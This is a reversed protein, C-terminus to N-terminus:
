VKKLYKVLDIINLIIHRCQKLLKFNIEDMQKYGIKDKLIKDDDSKFDVVDRVLYNHVNKINM